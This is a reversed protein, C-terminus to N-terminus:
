CKEESDVVSISFLNGSDITESGINKKTANNDKLFDVLRQELRESLDLFKAAKTNM